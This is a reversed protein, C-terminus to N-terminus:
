DTHPMVKIFLGTPVPNREQETKHKMQPLPRSEALLSVIWRAGGLPTLKRKQGDSFGQFSPLPMLERNVTANEGTGETKRRARTRM